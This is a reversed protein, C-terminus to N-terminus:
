PQPSSERLKKIEAEHRDSEVELWIDINNKLRQIARILVSATFLALWLCFLSAWWRPILGITLQAASTSLALVIAMFITDSLNKLPDLYGANYSPLKCREIHRLQYAETKFVDSLRLIAFSKFSLLFSGLTMFGAFLPGRFTQMYYNSIPKPDKCFICIAVCTIIYILLTIYFHYKIRSFASNWGGCSTNNHSCDNTM